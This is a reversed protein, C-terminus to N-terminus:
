TCYRPYRESVQLYPLAQLYLCAEHPFSHPNSRNRIYLPNNNVIIIEGDITWVWHGEEDQTISIAPGFADVGDKGDVGSYLKLETGDNFVLTYGGRKDEDEFEKVEVVFGGDAMQDVITRLAGISENMQAVQNQIQDIENQMTILEDRVFKGCGSALLGAAM